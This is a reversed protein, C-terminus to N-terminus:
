SAHTFFNRGPTISGLVAPRSAGTASPLNGPRGAMSENALLAFALAEKAEPPVGLSGSEVFSLGHLRERLTRMLHLNRLGGGSVVVESYRAGPLLFNEVALAISEATFASATALLDPFPLSGARQLLWNVYTEGFEERGTSKPPPQKLYPHALMQRLLDRHVKGSAAFRGEPDYRHAGGSSRRALEDLLSNGPGTDFARVGGSDAGAPLATVNAMGGINLCLRGRDPSRFLLWDALPVLPAGGGGAAMDRSRFDSLVTVSTREALVAPSGLQLTSAVEYRLMTERLPAHWVTQGHSAILDLTELPRACRECLARVADAFVEGLLAHIQSLKHLSVTEKSVVDGLRALMAEGYPFTEFALLKWELTEGTGRVEALAVDVGDCSTGSMLGAVLKKARIDWFMRGIEGLLIAYGYAAPMM